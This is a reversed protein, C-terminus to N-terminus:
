RDVGRAHARHGDVVGRLADPVDPYKRSLQLPLEAIGRLTNFPGGSQRRLADPSAALTLDPFHRLLAGIAIEGELRALPAGLCHHIGHGFAVHGHGTRTIDLHEGDRTRAPDHNAAALVVSVLSGAPITTGGIDVDETAFRATAREVPSDYRLLEEVAAPLLEPRARLLAMQDPHCLLALMGNGILNVTTEHGAVLLLNIMGVIEQESLQDHEDAAVILASVLDPQDDATADHDIGSRKAAILHRIYRTLSRSGQQRLAMGADTLPPSILARSWDRFDERDAVPVGLLECIVTIPLPFAMSTILDIEAVKAQEIEGILTKTIEEIRPRLAAIRRRTFAKTVLRRLRTHDPPDAFLMSLGAPGAGDATFLGLDLLWQPAHRPHKALRPDALAARAEAYRTVLWIDGGMTSDPRYRYVPAETRLQAYTPYPDARFRDNDLDIRSMTM